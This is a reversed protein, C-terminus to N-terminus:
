NPFDIYFRFGVGAYLGKFDLERKTGDNNVVPDGEAVAGNITTTAQGHELDKFQYLRYGVEANFTVNDTFLTEIAGYVSGGIANGQVVESYDAVGFATTGDSTFSYKNTMKVTAYGVSIGGFFRATQEQFLVFEIAVNPVYAFGSSDLDLLQVDSANDGDASELDQPLLAEIGIRLNVPGLGLAFGFAGSYNFEVKDTFVTGTGSSDEFAAQGLNSLGGTVRLYTSLNEENFDFVRANTTLSSLIFSIFVIIRM